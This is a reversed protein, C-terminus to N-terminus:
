VMPEIAVLSARVTDFVHQICSASLASRAAIHHMAQPESMVGRDLALWDAHQFIDKIMLAQQSSESTVNEVIQQPNWEVLVGGLDFVCHKIM